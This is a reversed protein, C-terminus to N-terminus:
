THRRSVWDGQSLELLAASAQLKVPGPWGQLVGLLPLLLLLLLLPLPLV